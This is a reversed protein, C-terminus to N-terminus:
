SANFSLVIRKQSQNINGNSGHKLWSPFLVLKAPEAKIEMWHYSYQTHEEINTFQMYPNPNHFYLSSSLNDANLYLAGSISSLPHTHEDLISGPTQINAWSNEMKHYSFGSVCAYERVVRIIENKLEKCSSVDEELSELLTNSTLFTSKANGETLTEHNVFEKDSLYDIIDIRQKNTIFDTFAVVLTPFMEYKMVTM